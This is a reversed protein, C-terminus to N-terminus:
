TLFDTYVKMEIVPGYKLIEKKIGLEEAALCYDIIRYITNNM